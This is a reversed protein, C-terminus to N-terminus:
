RIAPSSPRGSALALEYAASTSRASKKRKELYVALSDHLTETKAFLDPAWRHNRLDDLFLDRLTPIEEPQGELVTRFMEKLFLRQFKELGRSRLGSGRIRVEGDYTLLVYNKVRYSFMARYRGAMELQIGQPLVRSVEAVFAEERAGDGAVAAPPVFYVGDTDVEIPRAGGENLAEIV